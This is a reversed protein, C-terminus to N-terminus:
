DVIEILWGFVTLSCLNLNFNDVVKPVPNCCMDQINKKIRQSSLFTLFPSFTAFKLPLYFILVPTSDESKTSNNYWTLLM